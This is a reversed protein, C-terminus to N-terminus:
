ILKLFLIFLYQCFYVNERKALFESIYAEGPLLKPYNWSSDEFEKEKDSDYGWFPFSIHNWYYWYVRPSILSYDDGFRKLVNELKSSNIGHFYDIQKLKVFLDAETKNIQSILFPIYSLTNSISLLLGLVISVVFIRNLFL